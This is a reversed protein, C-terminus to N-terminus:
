LLKYYRESRLWTKRQGHTFSSTPWPGPSHGYGAAIATFGSNPTPVAFQGYEANGWAVIEGQARCTSAGSALAGAIVVALFGSWRLKSRGATIPGIKMM